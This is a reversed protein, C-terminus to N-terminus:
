GEPQDGNFSGIDLLGNETCLPLRAKEKPM